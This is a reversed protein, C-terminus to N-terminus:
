IVLGERMKGEISRGEWCLNAESQEKAGVKFVGDLGDVM